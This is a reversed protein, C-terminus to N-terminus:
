IANAARLRAIASADRGITALVEETHQGLLPAGNRIERKVGEFNLPSAVLHVDGKVAHTSPLAVNLHQVQPDAFMGDVQYMPGCPIGAANLVEVWHATPKTRTIGSIRANVAERNVLRAPGDIFRPDDHMEIDGLVKCFKAWVRPGTASLLMQGDATPYLGSPTQTPHDNGTPTPVEGDILWRTAQFDLLSIMTELLSTHVWRGKGTVERELLAILIAQACFAGACLDTIAIGTRVPPQGPQGTVSMLGGMGQAIQDVGPNSKYPGTQGFGSISAYVIRPNIRSVTEYDVGLRHKVDSRMNEIIVDAKAALELFIARGEETKLNLTVSRKNRHLNLRDSGFRKGVIEDTEGISEPPEIRIVDAGWDALTRGASPGARAVTLELVTFRGLPLQSRTDDM